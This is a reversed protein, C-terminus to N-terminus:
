CTNFSIEIIVHKSPFIKMIYTIFIDIVDVKLIWIEYKLLHKTCFVETVINENYLLTSCQNKEIFHLILRLLQIHNWTTPSKYQAFSKYYSVKQKLIRIYRILNEATLSNNICM